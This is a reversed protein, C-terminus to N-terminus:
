RKFKRKKPQKHQKSIGTVSGLFAIPIIIIRYVWSIPANDINFALGMIGFILSYTLAILIGCLAGCFLCDRGKNKKIASFGGFFASAYITFFSIPSLLSHPNENALGIISFLMFLALMIIASICLGFVASILIGSKSTHKKESVRKKM